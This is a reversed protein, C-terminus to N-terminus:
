YPRLKLYVFDGVNFSVDCRYEDAKSQARQLNQRLKDLMEDREKLQWEVTSVPITGKGFCGLLFLTEDM